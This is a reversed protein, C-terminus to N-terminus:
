KLIKKAMDTEVGVFFKPNGKDDLIPSIRLNAEYLEGSKKKNTITVIAIEKKDKIKHWLDQYFKKPMQNGWLSPRKGMMEKISYGTLDSLSKNAYLITGDIDTIMIQDLETDFFFNIHKCRSCKIEVAPSELDGLALLKNCKVCRHEIKKTKNMFFGSLLGSGLKLSSRNIFNYVCKRM